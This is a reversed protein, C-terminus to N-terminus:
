NPFNIILDLLATEDFDVPTLVNTVGYEALKHKTASGMALVLQRDNIKNKSFYAKVNSPSTFIVTDTYPITFENKVSTKYVYLNYATNTFAIQKQITQLSDIAQPFLVSDDKLVDRFNKGIQVVDVGNGIFDATKNFTLLYNASANSIVGYSVNVPLQPNQAFFYKIANKSSFFIWKTQPTYSYRIQSTEILSQDIVKIDYKKLKKFPSDQTLNRSIFITKTGSKTTNFTM